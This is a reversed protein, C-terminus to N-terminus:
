SGPLGAALFVRDREHLAARRLRCSPGPSPPLILEADADCRRRSLASVSPSPAAPLEPGSPPSGRPGASPSDKARLKDPSADRVGLLRLVPRRAGEARARPGEGAASRASRSICCACTSGSRFFEQRAASPSEPPVGGAAQPSIRTRPPRRRRATATGTGTATAPRSRAPRWRALRAAAPAQRSRSRGRSRGGRHRSSGALRRRHRGGPEFLPFADSVVLVPATDIVVLDRCRPSSASSPPCGRRASCRRRTRRYRGALCSGCTPASRSSETLADQIDSNGSIVESLGPAPPTGMRTAVQPSRLDADM